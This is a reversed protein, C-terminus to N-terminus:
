VPLVHLYIQTAIESSDEQQQEAELYLAVVPHM